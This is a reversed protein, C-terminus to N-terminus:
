IEDIEIPINKSLNVPEDANARHALACDNQSTGIMPNSSENTWHAVARLCQHRSHNTMLQPPLKCNM